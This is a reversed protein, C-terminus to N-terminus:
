SGLFYALVVLAAVGAVIGLVYSNIRGNQLRAGRRGAALVAQSVGGVVGDVAHRDFLGALRGVRVGLAAVANVIRDVIARDLWTATRALARAPAVALLHYIRDAQWGTAFLREIGAFSEGLRHRAPATAATDRYLARAM